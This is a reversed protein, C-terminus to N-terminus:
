RGNHALLGQKSALYYYSQYDADFNMKDEFVEDNMNFFCKVYGKKLLNFLVQKLEEEDMDLEETLYSFPQVFYLEDLVDFEADSM